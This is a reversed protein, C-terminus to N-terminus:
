HDATAHDITETAGGVTRQSISHALDASLEERAELRDLVARHTATWTHGIDALYSVNARLLPLAHNRNGQDALMLGYHWSCEAVGWRDGVDQLLTLAQDFTAMACAHDGRIAYTCGLTILTCGEQQRDGIKRAITLAHACLTRARQPTGLACAVDGLAHLLLAEFRRDGVVRAYTLAEKLYPIAAQATELEAYAIGLNGLAHAVHRQDGLARFLALAQEYALIARQPDGLRAYATGLNGLTRGESHRDELEQFIDLAREWAIIAQRFRGLDFTARGLSLLLQGEAPQQGLRQAAGLAWELHPLREREADSRLEDLQTRALAMALILQDGEVTGAHAIGWARAADFHPREADFRALNEVIRAGDALHRDHIEQALQLAAHAYRWCTAEYEGAAELEQRALDHLLDHLRWRARTADYMVLNRRLLLHLTSEVDVNAPAKIIAQALATAFDAVLVGLQHFVQQAVTDLQAYSLALTAAVDLDPDDPDRLQALRQRESTLRALYDVVALAPDNHLISGSIRLALPLYGCARALTQADADNLRVCLGRLLTVADTEDLPALDLTVMGPLTFRQRSTILLVCGPPPLLLRVQAANRADDALILVRQGHLVSIYHQVLADLDDPLQADQTFAHIVAQLAQIPTLPMSSAGRLSLVIQADPFTDQLAHAVQYALETKGIGGMGQVGSIAAVGGRAVAAQLASILQTIEGTRGTFDAVPARLQYRSPASYQADSVGNDMPVTPTPISALDDQHTSYRRTAAIFQEMERDSLRLVQALDLLRARDRPVRRDREWCAISHRSAGLMEALETVTLGARDRFRRLAQGFTEAM